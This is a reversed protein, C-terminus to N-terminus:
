VAFSMLHFLCLSHLVALMLRPGGCVGECMHVHIRVHVSGYVSHPFRVGKDLLLRQPLSRTCKTTIKESLSERFGERGPLDDGHGACGLVGKDVQNTSEAGQLCVRHQLQHLLHHLPWQLDFPILHAARPARGPPARGPFDGPTGSDKRTSSGILQPGSAVM